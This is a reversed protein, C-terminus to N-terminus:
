RVFTEAYERKSESLCVVNGRIEVYGMYKLIRINEKLAITSAPDKFFEVIASNGWEEGWEVVVDPIDECLVGKREPISCLFILIWEGMGCGQDMNWAEELSRRLEDKTKM